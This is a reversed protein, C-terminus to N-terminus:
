VCYFNRCDVLQGGYCWRGDPSYIQQHGAATGLALRWRRSSSSHSPATRPQGGLLATSWCARKDQLEPGSGTRSVWSALNFRIDAGSARRDLRMCQKAEEAAGPGKQKTRNPKKNTGRDGPMPLAVDARPLHRVGETAKAVCSSV